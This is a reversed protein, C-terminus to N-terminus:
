FQREIGIFMSRPAGPFLIAADDPAINRVYHTAVYDEDLINGLDAYIKWRQGSWGGRLGLLSYQDVTYTNAFDAYREGVIEFTPGAFWGRDDRYLLEGRLAYDPAAPLQNSRYVPDNDFEFHNVTFSLLPQIAGREGIRWSADLLVELGAHITRDVNTTLSTGPASPDDVSLIEDRIDAYYLSMDWGWRNNAGFSDGGRTGIEIVTGTMADLTADGGAINDQLEFNTPPEFLRSANAYLVVEDNLDFIAGLRPNLATYTDSPSSLAGSDVDLNHVDRDARVGQVALTLTWRDAIQWRDM